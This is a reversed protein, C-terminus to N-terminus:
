KKTQIGSLSSGSVLPISVVSQSWENWHGQTEFHVYKDQWTHLNEM